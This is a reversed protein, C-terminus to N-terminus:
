ETDSDEDRDACDGCKGDFGELNDLERSCESCLQIDDDQYHQAVEVWEVESLAANMLDAALGQIKEEPDVLESVYEKLMDAARYDSTARRVIRRAENQTGQGNDLWLAVLWTEYNAWGNYKKDDM